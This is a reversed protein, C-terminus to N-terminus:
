LSYWTSVGDCVLEVRSYQTSLLVSALAGNITDSGNPTVTITQLVNSGTKVIVLSRGANTSAAPLNVALSASNNVILLYDTAAVTVATGSSVTRTTVNLAGAMTMTGASNLTTSSTGIASTGNGILVGNSTFTTAGTGGNGVPLTGTVSNSNGLPLAGFTAATGVTGSSLLTQNATSSSNVSLGGPASIITSSGVASIVSSTINLGNGATLGSGGVATDVYLKTTADSNATPTGLNTIKNSSMSIPEQATITTNTIQLASTGSAALNLVGTSSEYLGTTVSDTFNLACESLSGPQFTGKGIFKSM